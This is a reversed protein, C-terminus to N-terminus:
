IVSQTSSLQFFSACIEFQKRAMKIILRPTSQVLDSFSLKKARLTYSLAELQDLWSAIIGCAACTTGGNKDGASVLSAFLALLKM